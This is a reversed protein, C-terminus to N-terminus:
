YNITTVSHATNVTYYCHCVPCSIKQQPGGVVAYSDKKMVSTAENQLTLDWAPFCVSYPKIHLNFFSCCSFVDLAINRFNIINTCMAIDVTHCWNCAPCCIKQEPEHMVAYLDTKMLSTVRDQPLHELLFCM